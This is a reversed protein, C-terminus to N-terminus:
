QTPNFKFDILLYKRDSFMSLFKQHHLHIGRELDEPTLVMITDNYSVEIGQEKSICKKVVYDRISVYGKYLKRVKVKKNKM